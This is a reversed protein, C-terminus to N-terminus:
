DGPPGANSLGFRSTLIDAQVFKRLIKVGIAFRPPEDDVKQCWIIQGDHMYYADKSQLRVQTGNMKVTVNSGLQLARDTEICLGEESQNVMNAAFAHCNNENDKPGPAAILIEIAVDTNRRSFHRRDTEFMKIRRTPLCVRAFCINYQKSISASQRNAYRKLQTAMLTFELKM